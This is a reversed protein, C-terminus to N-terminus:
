RLGTPIANLEVLDRTCHTVDPCGCLAMAEVLEARLLNLAHAVGAQGGVALGWLVPRGVLVAKAGFALAKIVDTGRRIGGDVLLEARGAIADAIPRLVEATAIATDLQRGGHNSVVIGDVGVDVARLADDARLIGKVLVPLKTRARLWEVDAWTLSPDLQERVYRSLGSEGGAAPVGERGTGAVNAVTLGPPLAFRNRADRERTGIEAADVTLVLARCGSREARDVLEATLGRDRYVYLQFWLPGTAAEAVAEVATTALTSLCMIVGAEGAARATAREGEPHALCHFATPAILIPMACPAGLITTAPDRRSVDVLMRPHLSVADWATRNRRLTLEDRAGGAYYDRAMPPLAALAAAEMEALNVFDM